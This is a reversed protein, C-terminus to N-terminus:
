GLGNQAPQQGHLLQVVGLLLGVLEEFPGRHLYSELVGVDDLGDPQAAEVAGEDGDDDGYGQQAEGEVVESFFVEEAGAVRDGEHEGRGQASSGQLEVVQSREHDAESLEDDELVEFPVELYGEFSPLLDRKVQSYDQADGELEDGPILEVLAQEGQRRALLSDIVLFGGFSELDGVLAGVRGVSPM